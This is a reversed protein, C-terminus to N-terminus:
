IEEKSKVFRILKGLQMSMMAEIAVNHDGIVVLEGEEKNLNRHFDVLAGIVSSDIIPAHSLDVGIFRFGRRYINNLEQGIKEAPNMMALENGPCLICYKGKETKEM